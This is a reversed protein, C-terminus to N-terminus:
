ASVDTALHLLGAIAGYLDIDFFAEDESPTLFIKEILDRLAEKSVLM